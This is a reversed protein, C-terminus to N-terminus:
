RSIFSKFPSGLKSCHGRAKAHKNRAKREEKRKQCIASLPLSPLSGNRSQEQTTKVVIIAHDLLPFLNPHSFMSSVRIEENVLELQENNQILVKKMAYTGYNSVDSHDKFKKALGGGGSASSNAVVEKVLFVYAFGCKGLQRVIKFWKLESFKWVWIRCMRGLGSHVMEGLGSAVGGVKAKQTGSSPMTASGMSRPFLAIRVNVLKQLKELDGYGAATHVDNRLSEEGIRITKVMTTQQIPQLLNAIAPKSRIKSSRSCCSQRLQSIQNRQGETQSKFIVALLSAVGGGYKPLSQAADDNNFISSPPSASSFTWNSPFPALSSTPLFTMPRSTPATPSSPPSPTMSHSTPSLYNTSAAM